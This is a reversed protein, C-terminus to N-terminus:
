LLQYPQLLSNVHERWIVLVVLFLFGAVKGSIAKGVVPVDFDVLSMELVLETNM